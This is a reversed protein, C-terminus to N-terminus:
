LEKHFTELVTEEAEEIIFFMTTNGATDLNATFNIQQIARLDADLAQQKSLDVAIMKCSEKFYPYDLLCGTTYDDEQGTAIKRINEYTKTDDNTLQNFVNKGDIKVNYDKIEVKLFYYNSHSTRGNENEFYLFDM